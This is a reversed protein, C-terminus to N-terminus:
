LSSVATLLKCCYLMIFHYLLPAKLEHYAVWVSHTRIFVFASRISHPYIKYALDISMETLASAIM